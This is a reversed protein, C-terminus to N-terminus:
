WNYKLLKQIINKDENSEANKYAEVLDNKMSLTHNFLLTHCLGRKALCIVDKKNQNQQKKKFNITESQDKNKSDLTLVKECFHYVLDYNKIRQNCYIMLHLICKM